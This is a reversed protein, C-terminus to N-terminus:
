ILIIFRNINPGMSGFIMVIFLGDHYNSREQTFVYMRGM